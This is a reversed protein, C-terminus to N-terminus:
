EGEGGPEEDEDVRECGDLYDLLLNIGPLNEEFEPRFGGNIHNSTYDLVVQRLVGAMTPIDYGELYESLEERVTMITEM